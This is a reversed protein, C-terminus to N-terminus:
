ARDVEESVPEEVCSTLVAKRREAAQREASRQVDEDAVTGDVDTM